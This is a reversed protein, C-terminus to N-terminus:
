LLIYNWLNRIANDVVYLWVSIYHSCFQIVKRITTKKM